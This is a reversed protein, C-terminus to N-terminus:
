PRYVGDGENLAQNIHEPLKSKSKKLEDYHILASAAMRAAISRFGKSTFDRIQEITFEAKM